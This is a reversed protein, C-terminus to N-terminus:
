AGGGQCAPCWHLTRPGMPERRVPGGCGGCRRQGYVRTAEARRLRSRPRGPQAPMTIIRRLRVGDSLQERAIEWLRGFEERSVASAPQWPDVGAAALIEARYANGIGAIVAQDLLVAGIPARRRRLREWAVSPDADDRLPDPGLRALLADVAMPDLLESATAGSLHLVYGGGAFRLRTTARPEPAREAPWSRFRGFLGLHVHVAEALGAFRYLLHKGYPEIRELVRGDVAIAVDAARGQPSSVALAHGAFRQAQDRAARHITHGEPM